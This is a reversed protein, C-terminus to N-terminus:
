ELAYQNAYIPRRLGQDRNTLTLAQASLVTGHVCDCHGLRVERRM